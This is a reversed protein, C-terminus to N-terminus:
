AAEPALEPTAHGRARVLPVLSLVLGVIGIAIMVGFVTRWGELFADGAGPTEDIKSLAIDFGNSIMVAAVIASAIAQGLVTGINRTLNSLAGTVGLSEYGVSGMILSSNPVSWTGMAMGDFFVLVGVIWIATSGGVFRFSSATCIFMAFGAVVFQGEGMADSMRGSAQSGLGLGIAGLFMIMGAAGEGYGRYSILFIPMLLRVGIAGAFGLLRAAVSDRLAPISFLRVDLMPTPTRREWSIFSALFGVGVVAGAMIAPSTWSWRFPNNMTIVLVTVALASLGAGGWDFPRRPGPKLQSVRAEDLLRWGVVFALMMPITVLLFMVRWTTISLVLGALIPGGAAGIAVATGQSGIAKGREEDPFVSVIMASGVSQGMSSGTATVVMAAVLVMLSPAAAALLSGSIFIVLGILHVRRRGIIDALRGMPIMLASITLSQAIVVWSVQRLTVDFSDAISSLAVFLMTSSMVM